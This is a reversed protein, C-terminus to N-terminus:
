FGSTLVFLWGAPDVPQNSESKLELFFHLIFLGIFIFHTFQLYNIVNIKTYITVFYVYYKFYYRFYLYFATQNYFQRWVQIIFLNLNKNWSFIYSLSPLNGVWGWSIIQGGWGKGFIIYKDDGEECYQRDDCSQWRWLRKEM